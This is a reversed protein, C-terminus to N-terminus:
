AVPGPDGCEVGMTSAPLTPPLLAASSVTLLKIVKGTRHATWSTYIEFSSAIMERTMELPQLGQDTRKDLLMFAEMSGSGSLMEFDPTALM